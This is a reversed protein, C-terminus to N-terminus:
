FNPTGDAMALQGGREQVIFKKFEPLIQQRMIEGANDLGTSHIHAHFEVTGGSGGMGNKLMQTQPASLISEGTGITTVLHEANGPSRFDFIGNAAGGPNYVTSSAAALQEAGIAGIAISEPIAFIGGEGLTKMIAQATSIGIEAIGIGKSIEFLTKNHGITLEKIKSLTGTVSNINAQARQKELEAMTANFEEEDKIQDAHYTDMLAQYNAMEDTSKGVKGKKGASEGSDGIGGKANEYIKKATDENGFVGGSNALDKQANKLETQIDKIRNYASLVDKNNGAREAENLKQTWQNLEETLNHIHDQMERVARGQTTFQSLFNALAQAAWGLAPLFNQGIENELLNFSNQAKKLKGATTELYSDEAGGFKKTLQNLIGQAGATKDLQIGYRAFSQTQGNLAKSVQRIAADMDMIGTKSIDLAVTYAKEATTTDGTLRVLETLQKKMGPLNEGTMESTKEAWNNLAVFQEESANKLSKVASALSYTATEDKIAEEGINKLFDVAAGITIFEMGLNVVSSLISNMGGNFATSDLGAKFLLDTQSM